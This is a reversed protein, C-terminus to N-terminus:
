ALGCASGREGPCTWGEPTLRQRLVVWPHEGRQLSPVGLEAEDDGRRGGFSRQSGLATSRLISVHKGAGRSADQM